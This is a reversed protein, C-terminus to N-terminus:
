GKQLRLIQPRCLKTIIPAQRIDTFSSCLDSILRQPCVIQQLQLHQCAQDKGLAWVCNGTSKAKNPGKPKTQVSRDCVPVQLNHVLECIIRLHLSTQLQTSMLATRAWLSLHQKAYQCTLKMSWVGRQLCSHLVMNCCIQAVLSWTQSTTLFCFLSSM